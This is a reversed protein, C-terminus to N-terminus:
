VNKSKILYYIFGTLAGGLHALHGIGDYEGFFALYAEFLLILPIIVKSKIPLIFFLLIKSDPELIASVLLVGFIAGSAGLMPGGLSTSQLLAGGLGCLLYFYIFSKKFLKEVVPGFSVLAIMNFVLHFLGGHLFQHSLWQYHQYDVSDTPFLVFSKYFPINSSELLYGVIFLIINVLALKKVVTM